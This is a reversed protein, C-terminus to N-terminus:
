EVWLFTDGSVLSLVGIYNIKIQKDKAANSLLTERSVKYNIDIRGNCTM